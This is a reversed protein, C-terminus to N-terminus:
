EVEIGFLLQMQEKSYIGLEVLKPACALQRTHMQDVFMGRILERLRENEDLVTHLQERLSDNGYELETMRRSVQECKLGHVFECRSAKMSM